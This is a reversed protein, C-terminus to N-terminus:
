YEDRRDDEKPKPSSQNSEIRSQEEEEEIMLHRRERPNRIRLLERKEPALGALRRSKKQIIAGTRGTLSKMLQVRTAYSGEVLESGIQALHSTLELIDSDGEPDESLELQQLQSNLAAQSEELSQMNELFGTKLLEREQDRMKRKEREEKKKEEKGDTRDKGLLQLVSDKQPSWKSKSPTFTHLSGRHDQVEDGEGDEESSILGTVRHSQQDTARHSQPGERKQVLIDEM